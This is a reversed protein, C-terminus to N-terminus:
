IAAGLIAMGHFVRCQLHQKTISKPCKGIQSKEGLEYLRIEVETNAM